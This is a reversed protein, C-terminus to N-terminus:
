EQIGQAIKGPALMLEANARLAALWLQGAHGVLANAQAQTAVGGAGAIADVVGVLADYETGIKDTQDSVATTIEDLKGKMDPM